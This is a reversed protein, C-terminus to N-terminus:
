PILICESLVGKLRVTRVRSGKRLYNTVGWKDALEQPIVADTTVCLILDGVNHIEKQVVSTWGNITALEIKDADKISEIKNIKAIFCVSNENEM